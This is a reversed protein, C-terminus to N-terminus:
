MLPNFCAVQKDSSFTANLKDLQASLVVSPIFSTRRVIQDSLGLQLMAVPSRLLHIFAAIKETINRRKSVIHKPENPESPLSSRNQMREDAPSRKFMVSQQKEIVRLKFKLRTNNTLDVGGGRLSLTRGDTWLKEGIKVTNPMYTSTSSHHMLTHRIVGDLTLTMSTAFVSSKM